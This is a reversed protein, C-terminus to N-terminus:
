KPTFGHLWLCRSTSDFRRFTFNLPHSEFVAALEINVKNPPPPPEDEAAAGVAGASGIAGAAL